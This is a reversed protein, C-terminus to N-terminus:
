GPPPMGEAGPMSQEGMPPVAQEPQPADQQPGQQQGAAAGNVKPVVIQGALGLQLNDAEVKVKIAEAGAKEASAKLQEVEAVAKEIAMEQVVKDLELQEPTKQSQGDIAEMLEQKNRLSSAMLYVKPPFTVAPALKVLADFQEAQVNATDPVEEITIDVMMDALSNDIRVIQQMQQAAMPDAARQQVAAQAQKEDMGGDVLRKVLEEAQTVPRNMGVFKVNKEDDTIRVWWEENKYQRILDWLRQHTREKLHRFRDMLMAIETQGSQQNALIARGSAAAGDRGLLASNPGMMEIENKSEKLLELEGTLEKTGDRVELETGPNRTLWGDPKALEQKAVDIDDVAGAEAIVQQMTIRHLAKSRRKNIEDQVDIFLRVLGYRNNDRDVFASQLLLPCWSMGDQDVFPVPYSDLVGGKTFVTYHWKGEHRFYMQVIRVRKRAKGSVWTKWSPRDDYTRSATRDNLTLEIADAADPWQAKVEEEDMWVYGGKYRADSFDPKRSHPDYFLRDWDWHVVDIKSTGDQKQDVTLEIGGFGEILMNEWVSSFKRPLHIDDAVFRLADTAAESADEDKPTRPFARPDTRQSAEYGILFSIKPQIRNVVVPPQRRDTLTKREAATLQKGDFYDRDRESAQRAGQSTEEADELWQVLRDVAVPSEVGGELQRKDGGARTAEM